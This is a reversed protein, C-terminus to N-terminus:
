LMGGEFQCRFPVLWGLFRLMGGFRSHFGGLFSTLGYRLDPIRGCGTFVSLLAGIM